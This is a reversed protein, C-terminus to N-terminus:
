ICEPAGIIEALASEIQSINMNHDNYGDVVMDLYYRSPLGLQHGPTM